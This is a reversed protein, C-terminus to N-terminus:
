CKLFTAEYAPMEHVERDEGAIRCAQEKFSGRETVLYFSFVAEEKREPDSYRNVKERPWHTTVTESSLM